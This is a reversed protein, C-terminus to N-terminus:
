KMNGGAQMKESNSQLKASPLKLPQSSAPLIPTAAASAASAAHETAHARLTEASKPAASQQQSCSSAPWLIPAAAICGSLAAVVSVWFNPTRWQPIRLENILEAHRNQEAKARRESLMLKAAIGWATNPDKAAELELRDDSHSAMEERFYAINEPTPLNRILVM